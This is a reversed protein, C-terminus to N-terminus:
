RRCEASQISEVRRSDINECVGDSATLDIPRPWNRVPQPYAGEAVRALGHVADSVQAPVGM